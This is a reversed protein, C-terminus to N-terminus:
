YKISFHRKPFSFGSLQPQQSFNSLAELIHFNPTKHDFVEKMPCFKRFQISPRVWRIQYLIEHIPNSIHFIGKNQNSLSGNLAIGKFSNHETFHVDNITFELIPRIQGINGM